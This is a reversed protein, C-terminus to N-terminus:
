SEYKKDSEKTDNKLKDLKDIKEKSKSHRFIFIFRPLLVVVLMILALMQNEEIGLIEILKNVLPNLAEDMLDKDADDLKVENEVDDKSIGRKEAIWTLLQDIIRSLRFNIPKKEKKETQQEQTQPEISALDINSDIISDTM